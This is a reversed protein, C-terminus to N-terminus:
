AAAAGLLAAIREERHDFIRRLARRVFVAHAAEGLPGFPLAYEVTDTVLTGGPVDAFAHTHRWLRYPGERQVDVFRREPEWAEIRTTWGFGVGCLRLRYTILAGAGMAIPGPTTIRFRLFAPTIAELNRADAFFAFVEGRPRPVVQARELRHAVRRLSM